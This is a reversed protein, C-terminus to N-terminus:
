PTKFSHWEEKKRDTQGQNEDSAPSSQLEEEDLFEPHSPTTKAEHRHEDANMNVMSGLTNGSIVGGSVLTAPLV